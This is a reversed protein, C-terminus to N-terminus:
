RTWKALEYRRGMFGRGHLRRKNLVVGLVNGGHLSVTDHLARVAHAPTREAEVVIVIGDVARAFAPSAISKDIPPLDLLVLEFRESLATIISSVSDPDTAVANL